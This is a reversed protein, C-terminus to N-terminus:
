HSVTPVTIMVHIICHPGAVLTVEPLTIMFIVHFLPLFKLVVTEAGCYKLRQSLDPDLLKGPTHGTSTHWLWFQAFNRLQMNCIYLPWLENKSALRPHRRPLAKSNILRRLRPRERVRERGCPLWHSVPPPYELRRREHMCMRLPAARCAAAAPYLSRVRRM